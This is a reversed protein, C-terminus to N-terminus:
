WQYTVCVASAARLFCFTMFIVFNSREEEEEEEESRERETERDASHSQLM